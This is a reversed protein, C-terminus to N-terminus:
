KSKSLQSRLAAPVDALLSPDLKVARALNTLAEPVTAKAEAQLLGLNFYATPSDPQLSIITHYYFIALQPNNVEYLVARNYMAPVYKPDEVLALRYERLADLREGEQQYVVGLDYYGVPSAPGAKIAQQYLQEAANLNGSRLLDNGAGVLTAFSAPQSTTTTTASTSASNSCAGLGVALAGLALCGAASRLWHRPRRCPALSQCIGSSGATWVFLLIIGTGGV